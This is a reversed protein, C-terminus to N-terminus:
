VVPDACESLVKLIRLVVLDACMSLVASLKPLFDRVGFSAGTPNTLDRM